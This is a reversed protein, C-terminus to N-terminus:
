ENSGGKEHRDIIKMLEAIGDNASKYKKAWEILEERLTKPKPPIPRINDSHWIWGENLGETQEILHITEGKLNKFSGVWVGKNEIGKPPKAYVEEGWKPTWTDARSILRLRHPRFNYGCELVPRNEGNFEKISLKQGIFNNMRGHNWWEWWRDELVEVVDGVQLPRIRNLWDTHTTITPKNDNGKDYWIGQSSLYGNLHHSSPHKFRPNAIGDWVEFAIEEEKAGTYLFCYHQQEM